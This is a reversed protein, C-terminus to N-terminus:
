NENRLSFFMGRIYLDGGSCLEMVISIEGKYEFTEIARVINPHDLGKLIDIENRLEKLLEQRTNDLKDVLISKMAYIIEKNSNGGTSTAATTNVNDSSSMMLSDEFSRNHISPTSTSRATSSTLVSFASSHQSADKLDGDMCLKFVNGIVPLQICKKELKQRRIATRLDRRASGGIQNQKKTVLKVDGMSGAGLHKTVQYFYMPDRNTQERTLNSRLKSFRSSGSTVSMNSLGMDDVSSGNSSKSRHSDTSAATPGTEDGNNGRGGGTSSDDKLPFVVDDRFSVVRVHDGGLQQQIATDEM